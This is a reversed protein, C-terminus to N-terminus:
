PVAAVTVGGAAHGGACGNSARAPAAKPDQSKPDQSRTDQALVLLRITGQPQMVTLRRTVDKALADRLAAAPMAVTMVGYFLGAAVESYTSSACLVELSQPEKLDVLTASLTGISQTKEYGVVSPVFLFPAAAGTDHLQRNTPEGVSLVYDAVSEREERAAALVEPLTTGAAGLRAALSAADVLVIRPEDHHIVKAVARAESRDDARAVRPAVQEPGVPTQSVAASPKFPVPVCGALLVCVLITLRIINM